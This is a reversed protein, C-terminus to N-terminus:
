MKAATIKPYKSIESIVKKLTSEGDTKLDILIQVPQDKIIGLELAKEISKLYLNDFLEKKQISRNSM